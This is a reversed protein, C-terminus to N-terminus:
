RRRNRSDRRRVPRSLPPCAKARRALQGEPRRGATSAASPCRGKRRSASPARRRRSVTGDSVTCAEFDGFGDVRQNAIVVRWGVHPRHRRPLDRAREIERSSTLLALCGLLEGQTCERGTTFRALHLPLNIMKLAILTERIPGVSAYDDKWGWVYESPGEVTSSPYQASYTFYADEGFTM